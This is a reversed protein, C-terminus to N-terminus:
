TRATGEDVAEEKKRRVLLDCAIIGLEYLLLMPVAMLSWSFPDPPTLIVALVVGVFVAIRRKRRFMQVNVVGIKAFFLMLLPTQFVLGLILSLTLFLGVYSGLTFNLDVEVPGWAALFELGVPIMILYGFLIGVGFLLLSFPLFVVVYKQEHPYLGAGIFKWSEYLIGPLAIFIGFILAVKLYTAFSEIYSIVWIKPPTGEVVEKADAELSVLIENLARPLDSAGVWRHLTDLPVDSKLVEAKRLALFDNLRRLSALVTDLDKGWGVARQLQNPGVTAAAESLRKQLDQFRQPIGPFRENEVESAFESVFTRSVGGGLKRIASSLVERDAETMSSPKAAIEAAFEEFPAELKVLLPPLAVDRAFLVEWHVEGEVLPKTGPAPARPVVGTLESELRSLTKEMRGILRNRQAASLARYHPRLTLEMIEKGYIMSITVGVTLYILAFIIRRRLEELHDGFTMRVERM